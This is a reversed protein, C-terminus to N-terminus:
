VDSWKSYTRIFGNLANFCLFLYSLENMLELSVVNFNFFPIYEKLFDENVTIIRTQGDSTRQLRTFVQSCIPCTIKICCWSILCKYCFTHGCIIPRSPYVHPLMCVACVGDDFIKLAPFPDDKKSFVRAPVFNKCM